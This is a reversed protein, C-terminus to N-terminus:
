TFLRRIIDKPFAKKVRMLMDSTELFLSKEMLSNITHNAAFYKKVTYSKPVGEGEPGSLVQFYVSSSDEQYKYWQRAELKKM